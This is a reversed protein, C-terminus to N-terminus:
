ASEAALATEPLNPARLGHGPRLYIAYGGTHVAFLATVAARRVVEPTSSGEGQALELARDKFLLRISLVSALAAVATEVILLGAPGRKLEGTTGPALLAADRVLLANCAAANAIAGPRGLRSIAFDSMAGGFGSLALLARNTWENTTVPREEGEFVM